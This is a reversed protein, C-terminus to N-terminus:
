VSIRNTRTPNTANNPLARPWIDPVNISALLSGGEPQGSVYGANPDYLPQMIMQGSATPIGQLWVSQLSYVQAVNFPKIPQRTAIGPGIPSFQPLSLTEWSYAQPGPSPFGQPYKNEWVRHYATFGRWSWGRGRPKQPSDPELATTQRQTWAM